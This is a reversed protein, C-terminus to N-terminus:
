CVTKDIKPDGFINLEEVLGYLVISLHFDDEGGRTRWVTPWCTKLSFASIQSEGVEDSVFRLIEAINPHGRSAPVPQQFEGV